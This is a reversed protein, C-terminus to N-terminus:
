DMRGKLTRTIVKEPTIVYVIAGWGSYADRDVSNLLTQSITEFLDEPGLDPEWLGEAVGFLKDSATGAVIFDEAFNLCGILDAGAIYPKLGGSPTRELGALVPETFYPGFRRSYLTSSVLHAFTSPEITRSEKITFMNVLYRFRDRLTSIDTALGTLGLYIRETVPFIKEFNMAVTMAGAGLRLDSAIAVCDKGAMAIVSGGNHDMISM